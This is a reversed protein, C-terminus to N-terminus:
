RSYGFYLMTLAIEDVLQGQQFLGLAEDLGAHRESFSSM